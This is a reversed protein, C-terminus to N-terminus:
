IDGKPDGLNIVVAGADAGNDLTSAETNDHGAEFVKVLAEFMAQTVRM